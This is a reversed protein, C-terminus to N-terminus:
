VWSHQYKSFELVSQIHTRNPQVCVKKLPASSSSSFYLIIHNKLPEKFLGHELLTANSKNKYQPATPAMSENCNSLKWRNSSAFGAGQEYEAQSNTVKTWARFDYQIESCM